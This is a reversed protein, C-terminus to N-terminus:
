EKFKDIEKQVKQSLKYDQCKMAQLAWGEIEDLENHKFHRKSCSYFDDEAATVDSGGFGREYDCHDCFVCLKIDM